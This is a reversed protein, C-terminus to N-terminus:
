PNMPGVFTNAYLIQAGLAAPETVSLSSRKTTEATDRTNGQFEAVLDEPNDAAPPVPAPTPAPASNPQSFKLSVAKMSQAAGGTSM